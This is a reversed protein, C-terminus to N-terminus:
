VDGSLANVDRTLIAMMTGTMVGAGVAEIADDEWRGLGDAEEAEAARVGSRVVMLIRSVMFEVRWVVVEFPVRRGM